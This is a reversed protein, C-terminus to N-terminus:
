FWVLLLILLLLLVPIITTTTATTTGYYYKTCYYLLVTTFLVQLTIGDEVYLAETLLWTGTAVDSIGGTGLDVAYLPAKGARAEWIGTLNVCGGRTTDDASELYLRESTASYRISVAITSNCVPKPIAENPSATDVVAAATLRIALVLAAVLLSQVQLPTTATTAM